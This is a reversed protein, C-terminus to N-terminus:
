GDPEGDDDEEALLRWARDRAAQELGAQRTADQGAAYLERYVALERAAEDRRGLALLAQALGWRANANDPAAAVVRRFAEAARERHGAGEFARALDLRVDVARPALLAARELPTVAEEPRGLFLLVRGHQHFALPEIRTRAAAEAAAALAAEAEAFRGSEWLASGLYLRTRADEAGLAVARGLVDAAEAFHEGLALARGLRAHALALGPAEEVARRYLALAEEGRGEAMAAEAATLPDVVQARVGGPLLALLVLLVAALPLPSPKM